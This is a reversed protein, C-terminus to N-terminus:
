SWERAKEGYDKIGESNMSSFANFFAKKDMTNMGLQYEQSIGNAQM